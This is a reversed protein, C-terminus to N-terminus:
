QSEQHMVLEVKDCVDAEREKVRTSFVQEQNHWSRTLGGLM